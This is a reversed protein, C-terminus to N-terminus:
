EEKNFAMIKDWLFDNHDNPGNGYLDELVPVWEGTQYDLIGEKYSPRSSITNWYKAINPLENGDVVGLFRMEQVRHLLVTLLCDAATYKDGYIFEKGHNLYDETYVLHKALFYMMKKYLGPPPGGFFRVMLFIFKRKKVGHNKLYDLFVSFFSRKCLLRGLVPVSIGGGTTGFTDGLEKTDDLFLFDVLDTFSESEDPFLKIDHNSNENDIYKMIDISECIPNGNVILTPVLTKPNLKKYDDRLHDGKSELRVLNYEYSINKESLALRVQNSAVSEGYGYLVYKNM